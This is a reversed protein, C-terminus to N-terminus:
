PRDKPRQLEIPEVPGACVPCREPMPDTADRLTLRACVRTLCRVAAIRDSLRM